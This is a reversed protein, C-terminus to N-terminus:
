IPLAAPPRLLVTPPMTPAAPRPTPSVMLLVVPVFCTPSPKCDKVPPTSSPALRKPLPASFAPSPLFLQYVWSRAFTIHGRHSSTHHHAMVSRLMFDPLGLSWQSVHISPQTSAYLCSLVSRCFVSKESVERQGLGFTAQIVAFLSVPVSM